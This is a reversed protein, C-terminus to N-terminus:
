AETTSGVQPEEYYPTPSFEIIRIQDPLVPEEVTRLTMYVAHCILYGFMLFGFERKTM